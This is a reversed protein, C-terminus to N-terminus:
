SLGENSPVLWSIGPPTAVMEFALSTDLSVVGNFQINYKAKLFIEEVVIKLLRQQLQLSM